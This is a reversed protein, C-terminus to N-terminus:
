RTRSRPLIHSRSPTVATEGRSRGARLAPRTQPRSAGVGIRPCSRRLPCDDCHPQPRCVDKGLLVIQAHYDNYLAVNTPLREMFMRQIADYDEDGRILGLRALIRRTYADVVFLPQEAAYLAISDATERGIGNVGLLLSRLRWPDFGRMTEIRGQLDQGVFALFAAVRRAKVNFYGAPRILPAIEAASLHALRDYSLLERERLVQLAKEVNTWATNQTLIAGLCIEFPTKGPWWGAHGQARLLRRYVVLLTRRTPPQPAPRRPM